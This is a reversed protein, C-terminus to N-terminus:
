KHDESLMDKAIRMPDITYQKSSIQEKLNALYAADKDENLETIIQKKVEPFTTSSKVHHQSIEITDVKASNTVKNLDASFTSDTKKSLQVADTKESKKSAYPSAAYNLNYDTNKINTIRVEIVNDASNKFFKSFTPSQKM